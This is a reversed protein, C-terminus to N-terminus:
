KKGKNKGKPPAPAGQVAALESKLSLLVNVQRQWESKPVGSLKL